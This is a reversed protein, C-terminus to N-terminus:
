GGSAQECLAGFRASEEQNGLGGHAQALLCIVRVDEPDLQYAQELRELARDFQGTQLGLRGLNMLVSTNEPYEENLSRLMLIGRMPDDSAPAETYVLALNIRPGPDSPDLSIASEFARIAGNRCFNKVKEETASRMGITYTTGAISWSEATGELEAVEEAYFGSIPPFGARYWAGSLEQLALSRLSDADASRVQTQAALVDNAAVGELTAMAEQELNAIDTSEANLARSKEIAVQEPPKTDCGFYMVLFLLIFASVAAWHKTTM